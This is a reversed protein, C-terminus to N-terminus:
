DSYHFRSKQGQEYYYQEEREFESLKKVSPHYIPKETGWVALALSMVRDNTLGEPWDIKIERGELQYQCSKLEDILGPENPIKIKDQELLIALNELLQRRKTKTFVFPLVMLGQRTLDEYIPDGVGTSDLIVNANNFRRAMAEIKAKQLNWDVQSFREQNGVRFTNLDFPTLVTWDQYKALDVGLQFSKGEIIEIEGSWLNQEIRKFVQSAGVLFECMFEQSYFAGTMERKAQKLEEEPIVKTDEVTQFFWDWYKGKNQKAYEFLKWAHNQGQPTFVFTATGKNETLVPRIIQTWIEEKMQAYEDFVVDIPNTGRWSDPKDAGGLLWLSGNKLKLSMETENKKVILVEPWHKM